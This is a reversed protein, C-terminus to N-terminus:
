CQFTRYLTNLDGQMSVLSNKVEDILLEQAPFDLIYHFNGKKLICPVLVVFVTGKNEISSNTFTLTTQSSFYLLITLLRKSCTGPYIYKLLLSNSYCFFSSFYQYQHCQSLSLSLYILIATHYQYVTVSLMDHLICSM